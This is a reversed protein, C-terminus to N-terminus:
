LLILENNLIHNDSNNYNKNINKTCIKYNRIHFYEKKNFSKIQDKYIKILIKTNSSERERIRQKKRM